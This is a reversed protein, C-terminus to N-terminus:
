RCRAKGRPKRGDPYEGKTFVPITKDWHKAKAVPITQLIDRGILYRM